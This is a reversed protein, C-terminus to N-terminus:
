APGSGSSRLAQLFAQVADLDGREPFESPAALGNGHAM